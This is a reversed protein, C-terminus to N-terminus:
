PEALPWAWTTTAPGSEPMRQNKEELLQSTITLTILPQASFLRQHTKLAAVVSSVAM